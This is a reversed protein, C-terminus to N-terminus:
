LDEYIIIAEIIVRKKNTYISDYVMPVVTVIRWNETLQVLTESLKMDDVGKIWYKLHQKKMIKTKLLTFLYVRMLRCIYIPLSRLM